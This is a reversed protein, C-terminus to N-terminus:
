PESVEGLPPSAGAPLRANRRYTDRLAPDGVSVSLSDVISRASAAHKAAEEGGGRAESLEALAAHAEWEIRRLGAAEAGDLARALLRGAEDLDGLVYLCLGGVLLADALPERWGGAESDERVRGLLAEAREPQDLALRARATALIADAGYVYLGGAPVALSSILEEAQAGLALARQDEGRLATALALHGLCRLIYGESGDREAAVLGRELHAIAEDLAFLETLTWGLMSETVATWWPHGTEEALEITEMGLSLAKGYDGQSRHIWGAHALMPAQYPRLGTQRSMAMAEDIRRLARPWDGRAMPAFSSEFVTWQLRFQWPEGRRRLIGELEPLLRELNSVDGSYAAATKLGDLAVAVAEENGLRRALDEARLGQEFALDFRLRNSSLIALRSLIDVQAMGDGLEEAIALADELYPVCDANTRGLGVMLDGGLWRLALM